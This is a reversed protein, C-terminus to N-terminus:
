APINQDRKTPEWVNNKIGKIYKFFGTLLAINMLVFYRLSKAPLWQLSATRLLPDLGIALIFAVTISCFVVAWFFNHFCLALSVASLWMAGILFPGLWRLVKHSFFAFGLTGFPPWWLHLFTKMNQFNGASIRSKRRFEERWDHSIPEYCLAELDNIAAGGQELARMAIYFDDVLYNGPVQTFFDSRLAYCGGFPGMMRGWAQGERHKLWVEGSIYQNESRSIGASRIGTHIVKADVLAVQPNRFHRALNKLTSRDFLVNADTMFFLHGPSAPTEALALESLRNIVGPKGSRNPFPFFRIAPRGAAYARVIDNTQDASNDSGIFIRLRDKPYDLGDLSELKARIVREENYVAMLVSVLPWEQPEDPSVKSKDPALIRLILPYLLYTHVLGALSLTFIAILFLFLM